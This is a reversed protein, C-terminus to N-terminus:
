RKVVRMTFFNRKLDLRFRGVSLKFGNSRRRDCCAKSFFNDGEKRYAVKLYQFAV